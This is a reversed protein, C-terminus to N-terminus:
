SLKKIQNIKQKKMFYKDMLKTQVLTLYTFVKISKIILQSSDQIESSHTITLTYNELYLKNEIIRTKAYIIPNWISMLIVLFSIKM